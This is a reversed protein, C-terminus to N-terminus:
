GCRSMGTRDWLELARRCESLEYARNPTHLDDKAECVSRLMATRAPSTEVGCRVEKGNIKYSVEKCRM